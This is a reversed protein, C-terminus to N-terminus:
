RCQPYYFKGTQITGDTGVYRMLYLGSPVGPLEIRIQGNELTKEHKMTLVQRGQIDFVAIQGQQSHGPPLLFVANAREIQHIDLHENEGSFSETQGSNSGTAPLMNQMVPAQWELNILKRPTTGRFSLTGADNLAVSVINANADIALSMAYRQLGAPMNTRNILVKLQNGFLSWTVPCADRLKLYEFVEVGSAMWIRDSGAQGYVAAAHEMYTQFTSFLLSGGVTNPSVHHTFDNYWYHNGNQSLSACNDLSQSITAPTTIDDSKFDRYIMFQNYNLPNDIKLGYPSGVTTTRSYACVSGLQWATPFYGADGSPSVFHNLHRGTHSFVASDNASIEWAYNTGTGTAHSYAHNVVTWGSDVMQTLQPWTVYSPTNIHIDSFSSNVSNWMLSGKFPINKGCGDTYFLGPYTGYTQPSYGGGFLKFACTYADILGDDLSFSYAFDKDYRLPAKNVALTTPVQDFTITVLLHGEPVQSLVTLSVSDSFAIANKTDVMKVRINHLGSAPNLLTLEFPPLNDAGVLLGNDFLQVGAVDVVQSNPTMLSAMMHGTAGDGDNSNNTKGNGFWTFPTASGIFRIRQIGIQFSNAGASYPFEFFALASFNITPDFASLPIRITKWENGIGGAAIAYPGLNVLGIGAPRVRIKSWDVPGGCNRIVLELTDNGGAIANQLPTYLSTPSYGLKMKVFGTMTNTVQLYDAGPAVAGTFAMNVPLNLPALWSTGAAPSTITVSMTSPPVPPEYVVVNVVPSTAELGTHSIVKATFPYSGQPLTNVPFTYPQSIDEGLKNTGQYFEVKEIYNGTPNGLALSAVLEGVGGNGNHKNDTKGFGFWVFPNTGGIFRISQIDIQFNGASASYPFELNAISAFNITSVFDSLPITITVWNIGVGGAANVYPLICLTGLGAPRLQIKSWDTSGNVDRLTIEMQNNGGSIVNVLPSYISAPGYGFKLKRYGTLTNSVQLYDSQSPDLGIVNAALEFSAPPALTDGPLPQSLVVSFGPGQPPLVEIQNLPSDFFQADSMLLRAKISFTGASPNLWNYQFPPSMDEGLKVNGAYFEVKQPYVPPMSGQVLNAVLEGSGGYGNHKNDTKGEGFWTFPTTGGTFKICSIAMEFSAAGASYPFEINSVQTFNITASFDVLPITITKWSNGLGGAALIYPQLTLSGLGMPKIQIKTWDVVGSNLKMTIELQTNGGTVVNQLPSYLSVPSYGFKLKRFGGLTNQVVMATPEPYTVGSVAAEMPIVAPLNIQALNQPSTLLVQQANAISCCFILTILFSFQFINYRNIM